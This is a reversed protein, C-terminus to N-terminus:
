QFFEDGKNLRSVKNNKGNNYGKTFPGGTHIAPPKPVEARGGRSKVKGGVKNNKGTLGRGGADSLEKIDIGEKMGQDGMSEDGEMDDGEMDDGLDDDSGFDDEEDGLDDDDGGLQQSLMDCLQQAVERPLTLTIEDGEMDDGMDEEGGGDGAGSGDENGYDGDPLGLAQNDTTPSPINENDMVQEFLKEFLSKSMFNNISRKLNKQQNESINKYKQPKVLGEVDDPGTATKALSAVRNGANKAYEAKSKNKKVSKNNIFGARKENLLKYADLIDNNSKDM